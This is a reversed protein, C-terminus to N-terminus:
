GGRGEPEEPGPPACRRQLRDFYEEIRRWLDAGGAFGVWHTRVLGALEYCADIPVLYCEAGTARWRLLLAEVDAAIGAIAPNAAVVDAWANLDLLSETAGAPSPYCAVVTDLDSQHFFFALDVPINLSDWQAQSLAFGPLRLYRQPVARYRGNAAGDKTFLLYCARCACLLRRDGLNAVHGHEAAVQEGCLGCRESAGPTGSNPPVERRKPLPQIQLLPLERSQQPQLEHLQLLGAVIEDAALLRMIREGDPLGRLLEVLRRLGAGHLGVVARVLEEVQGAVAPGACDLEDLLAEIQAGLESHTVMAVM